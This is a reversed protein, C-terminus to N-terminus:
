YTRSFIKILDNRSYSYKNGPIQATKMPIWARMYVNITSDNVELIIGPPPISATESIQARLAHHRILKDKFIEAIDIEAHHPTGDKSRWDVQAPAPFNPIPGWGATMNDPYDSGLSESSSQLEDDPEDIRYNGYRVKCGYTSYTSVDFDHATFWLPWDAVTGTYPGHGPPPTMNSSPHAPQIDPDPATTTMAPYCGTMALSLLLAPALRTRPGLSTPLRSPRTTM